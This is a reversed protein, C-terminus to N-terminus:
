FIKVECVQNLSSTSFNLRLSGNILTNSKPLSFKRPHRLWNILKWSERMQNTLKPTRWYWQDIKSDWWGIPRIESWHFGLFFIWSCIQIGPYRYGITFNWGFMSFVFILFDQKQNISNIVLSFGSLFDLQLNLNRPISLRYYLKM